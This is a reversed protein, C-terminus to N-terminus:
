RGKLIEIKDDKLYARYTTNINYNKLNFLSKYKKTLTITIKKDEILLELSNIDDINEKLLQELDQKINEDNIHKIGFKLTEKINNDIKRKENALNGYDILLGFMLVILPLLIIFIVLVQGKNNMM